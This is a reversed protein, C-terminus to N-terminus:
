VKINNVDLTLATLLPEIERYFAISKLSSAFYSGVGWQGTASPNTFTHTGSWLFAQTDYDYLTLTMTSTGADTQLIMEGSITKGKLSLGNNALVQGAGNPIRANDM